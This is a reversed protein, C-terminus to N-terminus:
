RVTREFGAPQVQAPSGKPFGAVFEDGLTLVQTATERYVGRLHQAMTSREALDPLGPMPM